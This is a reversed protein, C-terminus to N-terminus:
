RREASSRVRRPRRACVGLEASFRTNPTIGPLGTFLL